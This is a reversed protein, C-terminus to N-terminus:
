FAQNSSEFLVALVKTGNLLMWKDRVEFIPARAGGFSEIKPM